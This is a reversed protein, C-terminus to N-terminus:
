SRVAIIMVIGEEWVQLRQSIHRLVQKNGQQLIRESFRM